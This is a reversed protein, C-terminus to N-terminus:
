CYKGTFDIGEFARSPCGNPVNPARLSLFGGCAGQPGLETGIMTRTIEDIASIIASQCGGSIVSNCSTVSDVDGDVETAGIIGGSFRMICGAYPLTSASLAVPPSTDLWFTQFIQTSNAVFDQVDRFATNLTWTSNLLNPSYAPQSRPHFGDFTISGSMNYTSMVPQTCYANTEVTYSMRLLTLPFCFAFLSSPLHCTFYLPLFYTSYLSLFCTLLAISEYVQVKLICTPHTSVRQLCVGSIGCHPVARFSFAMWGEVCCLM